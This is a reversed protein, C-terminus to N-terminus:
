CWCSLHLDMGTRISRLVLPHCVPKLVVTGAGYVQRPATWRIGESNFPGMSSLSVRGKPIGLGHSHHSPTGRHEESWGGGGNVEPVILRQAQTVDAWCCGLLASDLYHLAARGLATSSLNTGFGETAYGQTVQVQVVPRVPWNKLPKIPYRTSWSKCGMVWGWSLAVTTLSTVARGGLHPIDDKSPPHSSGLFPGVRRYVGETPHPHPAPLTQHVSFLLGHHSHESLNGRGWKRVLHNRIDM